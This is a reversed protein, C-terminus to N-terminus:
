AASRWDPRRWLRDLGLGVIFIPVLMHWWDVVPRMKTNGAQKPPYIKSVPVEAVRYGLKLLKMMLYVELRYGDLWRRDLDIRRDDLLRTRMARYGNTSETVRRGCFLSILLPHLRTALKRYRPM